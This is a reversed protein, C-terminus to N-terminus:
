REKSVHTKTGLGGPGGWQRGKRGKEAQKTHFILGSNGREATGVDHTKKKEKGRVSSKDETTQSPDVRKSTAGQFGCIKVAVKRAKSINGGTGKKGPGKVDLPYVVSRRTRKPNMRCSIRGNERKKGSIKRRGEAVM